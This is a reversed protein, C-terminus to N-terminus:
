GEKLEYRTRPGRGTRVLLGMEVLGTLDRHVTQYAVSFRERCWGSTVSGERAAQKLIQMQRDNLAEQIAKPLLRGTKSSVRIRDLHEGPGRLLVQLYGDAFSIEPPDLGHELMDDRMRRLGAGLEDMFGLIRLGQAFSPNRSCPRITTARGPKMVAQLHRITLNGPPKGPSLIAIRDRYAEVRIRRSADEYDRHAAANIFAERIVEPPYENVRVRKLGVVRMPHRTNRDVFRLVAEVATPVPVHIEEYDSPKADSKTGSYAV